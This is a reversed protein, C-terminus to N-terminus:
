RGWRWIALPTTGFHYNRVDKGLVVVYEPSYVPVRPSDAVWKAALDDWIPQRQAPDTDFAKKILADVEPNKYDSTNFPSDGRIDFNVVWYPDGFAVTFQAILSYTRDPKNRAELYPAAALTKIKVDVGLERWTDKAITAIQSWDNEGERILLDVEVPTKVGSEAILQKAKEIDLERPKGLEEDFNTFAPAYPGYYTAAYGHAVEERIGTYPIAYTLAERFKANDFPAHTNPLTLIVMTPFRNAAVKCCDNEELSAVSKNTLGVTVDAKDDGAQLLLTSDSKIFNVIVREELPKTGFFTDNAVLVARRNPDYEELVYPGGGAAHSAMWANPEDASVGGNAEVVKPNVIALDSYTLLDPYTPYRDKLRIIVTTADPAEVATVFGPGRDANLFYAGTGQRKILRDFSYKVAEADMPTGDPFVADDRLKFTWTKADADSSWETALYPEVTSFDDEPFGNEGEKTGHQTLTVYLNSIFGADNLNSAESPDLTAPPLSYNVVFPGKAQASAASGTPETGSEAGRSLTVALAVGIVIVAL